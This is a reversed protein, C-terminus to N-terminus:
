FSLEAMVSNAMQHLCVKGNGLLLPMNERGELGHRSLGAGAIFSCYQDLELKFFFFYHVHFPVLLRSV